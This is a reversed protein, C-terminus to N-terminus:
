IGLEILCIREEHDLMMEIITTEMDDPVPEPTPPNDGEKYFAGTRDDYLWGPPPTPKLFRDDGEAEANFGWGEHVYDPADVFVINPAFKGITDAATPFHTTEDKYCIYDVIQFVKSM